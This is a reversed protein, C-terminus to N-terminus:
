GNPLTAEKFVNIEWGERTYVSAFKRFYKVLIAMWYVYEYTKFPKQVLYKTFLNIVFVTNFPVIYNSANM